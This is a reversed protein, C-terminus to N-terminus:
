ETLSNNKTESTIVIKNQKENEPNKPNQVSKHFKSVHYM